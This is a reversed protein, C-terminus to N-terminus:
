PKEFFAISSGVWSKDKNFKVGIMDGKSLRAVTIALTPRADQEPWLYLMRLETKVPGDPSQIAPAYAVKRQLIFNERQEMQDLDARTVNYLVGAGAFGFLPKLVYNELDPPYAPLQHLFFSEPIYRSRLFPMTYKSVRFFWNPHGAWEVDVEETLNFQRELDPRQLLEDFIVRNYIRRIPTKQGDRLYYLQRGERLVQSLCVPRVGTQAETCFFDIATNQKEPEIELLIVEEPQHRGLLVERLLKWYSGAELTGPFYSLADSVSFHQRYAQGVEDQFGFISPFGQLEILQPLWGGEADQTVAFDIALFQPHADEGPVGLAPPVAQQTLDKFGSQCIVETIEACAQLLHERLSAPVFVPTEAVRFPITYAHLGNLHALFARYKEETFQANYAQRLSPIMKKIQLNLAV